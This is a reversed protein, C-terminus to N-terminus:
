HNEEVTNELVITYKYNILGNEIPVKVDFGIIDIFNINNRIIYKAFAFRIPHTGFIFHNSTILSVNKEKHSLINNNKM